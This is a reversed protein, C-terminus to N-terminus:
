LQMTNIRLPALGYVPITFFKREFVSSSVIWFIKILVIKLQMVFIRTLFDIKFPQFVNKKGPMDVYSENNGSETEILPDWQV